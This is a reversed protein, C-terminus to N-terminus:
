EGVVHDIEDALVVVVWRVPSPDTMIIIHDQVMRHARSHSRARARILPQSSVQSAIVSMIV